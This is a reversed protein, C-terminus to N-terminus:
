SPLLSTIEFCFRHFSTQLVILLLRISAFLGIPFEIFLVITVFCDVLDIDSSCRFRHSIRHIIRHYRLLCGFRRRFFSPFLWLSTFLCSIPRFHRGDPERFRSSYTPVEKQLIAFGRRFKRRHSRSVEVFRTPILSPQRSCVHTLSSQTLSSQCLHGERRFTSIPM